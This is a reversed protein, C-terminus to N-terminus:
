KRNEQQAQLRAIDKRNIDQWAKLDHIEPVFIVTILILFLVCMVCVTACVVGVMGMGQQKHIVTQTTGAPMHDIVKQVAQTLDVVLNTMYDLRKVEPSRTDLGAFKDEPYQTADASEHMNM